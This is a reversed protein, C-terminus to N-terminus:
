IVEFINENEKTESTSIKQQLLIKNSNNNDNYIANIENKQSDIIYKSLKPYKIILQNVTYNLILEIIKPCYKIIVKNIIYDYIMQNNKKEMNSLYLNELVKASYYIIEIGKKVQDNEEKNLIHKDNETHEFRLQFSLFIYQLIFSLKQLFIARDYGNLDLEILKKLLQM